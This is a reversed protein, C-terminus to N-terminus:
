DDLRHGTSNTNNLFKGGGTKLFMRGGPRTTLRHLVLLEEVCCFLDGALETATREEDKSM